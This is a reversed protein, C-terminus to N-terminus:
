KGNNLCNIRVYDPNDIGFLIDSLLNEHISRIRRPISKIHEERFKILTRIKRVVVAKCREREVLVEKRIKM